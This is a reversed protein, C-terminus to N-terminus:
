TLTSEAARVRAKRAGLAGRPDLLAAACHGGGHKNTTRHERLEQLGQGRGFLLIRIDKTMSTTRM